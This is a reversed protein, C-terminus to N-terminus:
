EYWIDDSKTYSLSLFCDNETHVYKWRCSGALTQGIANTRWVEVRVYKWAFSIKRHIRLPTGGGGSIYLNYRVIKRFMYVCLRFFANESLGKFASNFGMQYKSANNAWWIRWTPLILTLDNVRISSIDYIRTYIPCRNKTNRSWVCRRVVTPLVGRSSHDARRLSRLRVVCSVWLLCIDM